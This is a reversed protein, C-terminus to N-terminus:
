SSERNRQDPPTPTLTKHMETLSYWVFLRILDATLSIRKNTAENTSLIFTGVLNHVMGTPYGMVELQFAVLLCFRQHSKQSTNHPISLPVHM